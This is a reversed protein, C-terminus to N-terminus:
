SAARSRATAPQEAVLPRADGWGLDRHPEPGMVAVAGASTPLLRRQVADTLARRQELLKTTFEHRARLHVLFILAFGIVFAAWPPM